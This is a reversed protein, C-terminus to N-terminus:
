RNLAKIGSLPQDWYSDGKRIYLRDAYVTVADFPGDLPNKENDSGWYGKIPQPGQARTNDAANSVFYHDGQFLYTRGRHSVAADFPGTLLQGNANQGWRGEIALPGQCAANEGPLCLYFNKGRFLGLRDGVVCAADIGGSADRM